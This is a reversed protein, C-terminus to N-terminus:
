PPPGSRGPQQNENVRPSTSKKRSSPRMYRLSGLSGSGLMSPGSCFAQSRSASRSELAVKLSIQEGTGKSNRVLPLLLSVQFPKRSSRSASNSKRACSAISPTTSTEASRWRESAQRM